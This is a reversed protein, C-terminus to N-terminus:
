DSGAIVTNFSFDTIGAIDASVTLTVTVAIYEGPNVKQGNVYSWDLSLYTSATSPNWGANSMSLTLPVNGENRLYITLSKKSSPDLVGWNIVSTKNTGEQDWYANIGGVTDVVNSTRLSGVNSYSSSTQYSSRVNAVIFASFIGSLLVLLVLAVMAVVLKVIHPRKAVRETLFYGIYRIFKFIRSRKIPEIADRGRELHRLFRTNICRM